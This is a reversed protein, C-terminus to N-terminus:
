VATTIQVKKFIRPFAATFQEYVDTEGLMLLVEAVLEQDFLRYVDIQQNTASSPLDKEPMIARLHAYLAVVEPSFAVKAVSAMCEAQVRGHFPVDEELLTSRVALFEAHREEPLRGGSEQYLVYGNEDSDISPAVIFEIHRVSPAEVSASM